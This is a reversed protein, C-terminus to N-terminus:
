VDRRKVGCYSLFYRLKELNMSPITPVFDIRPSPTASQAQLDKLHSILLPMGDGITPPPLTTPEYRSVSTFKSWDVDKGGRPIGM